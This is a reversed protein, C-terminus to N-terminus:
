AAIGQARLYEDYTGSYDAITGNPKMEIIRSALASVFERHRQLYLKVPGKARTEAITSTRPQAVTVM